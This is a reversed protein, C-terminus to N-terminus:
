HKTKFDIKASDDSNKKVLLSTRARVSTLVLLQTSYTFGILLRARMEFLLLTYWSFFIM